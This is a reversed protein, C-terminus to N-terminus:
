IVRELETKNQAKNWVEELSKVGNPRYAFGAYGEEGSHVIGQIDSIPVETKFLKGEPHAKTIYDGQIKFGEDTLKVFDGPLLEQRKSYRYVPITGKESVPYNEKKLWSPSLPEGELKRYKLTDAEGMRGQKPEAWGAKARVFEEASKYKKAEAILLELEKSVKPIAEELVEKGATKPVAGKKFGKKTADEITMGMKVKGLKEGVGKYIKAGEEGFLDTIIKPTYEMGKLEGKPILTKLKDIIKEKARASLGLAKIATGVLKPSSSGLLLLTAPNVIASFANFLGAGGVIKGVLGEPLISRFGLGALEASFDNGIYNELYNVLERRHENNVGKYLNLMKRIATDKQVKTSGVSLAGSIEKRLSQAESYKALMEKYGPVEKELKNVVKEKLQGVFLNAQKSSPSYFDDLNRKLLDLGKATLDGKQNGWDNLLNLIGEVDKVDKSQITARSFDLTGDANKKIGFKSALTDAAKKIDTIDFTKESGSVKEYGKIFDDSIKNRFKQFGTELDNLLREGAEGAETESYKMAKSVANMEEKTGTKFVDYIKRVAESGTGTIKGFVETGTKGALKPLYKGVKWGLPLVAGMGAGKLGGVVAEKVGGGEDLARATGYAGGWGAFNLTTKYKKLVDPMKQAVKELTKEAFPNKTLNSAVKESVGLWKNGTTLAKTALGGPLFSIINLTDTFKAGEGAGEARL